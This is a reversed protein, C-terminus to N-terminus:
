GFAPRLAGPCFPVRGGRRRARRRPFRIPRHLACGVGGDAAKRTIPRNIEFSRWIRTLVSLGPGGVVGPRTPSAPSALGRLPRSSWRADTPRKAPNSIRVLDAFAASKRAESLERKTIPASSKSSPPFACTQAFSQPLCRWLPSVVCKRLLPTGAIRSSLTSVVM